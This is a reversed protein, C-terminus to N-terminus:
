VVTSQLASLDKFVSLSLVFHYYFVSDCQLKMQSLVITAGNLMGLNDLSLLCAKFLVVLRHCIYRLKDLFTDERLHLSVMLCSAHFSSFLLQFSFFHGLQTKVSDSLPFPNPPASYFSFMFHPISRSYNLLAPSWLVPIHLFDAAQTNCCWTAWQMYTLSSQNAREERTPGCEAGKVLKKNIAWSWKVSQPLHKM